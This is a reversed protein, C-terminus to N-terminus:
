IGGRKTKIFRELSEVDKFNKELVENKNIKVAFEKEIFCILEIIGVSDLFGSDILEERDGISDMQLPLKNKLFDKVRTKIDAQM